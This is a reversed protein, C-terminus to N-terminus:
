KGAMAPRTDDARQDQALGVGGEDAVRLRLLQPRARLRGHAPRKRAPSQVSVPRGAVMSPATRLPRAAARGRRPRSRGRQAGRAPGTPRGAGGSPRARRAAPRSARRRARSRSRRVEEVEAVERHDEGADPEPAAARQQQRLWATDDSTTSRAQSRSRAQRASVPRWRIPPVSYMHSARNGSASRRSDRKWTTHGGRSSTPAAGRRSRGARAPQRLRREGEDDEDSDRTRAQRLHVDVERMAIREAVPGPARGRHVDASM